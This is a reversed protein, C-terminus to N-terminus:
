VLAYIAQRPLLTQGDSTKGTRRHVLSSAADYHLVGGAFREVITAIAGAGIVHRILTESFTGRESM